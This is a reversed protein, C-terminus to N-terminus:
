LWNHYYSYSVHNKKWWDLPRAEFRNLEAKCYSEPTLDDESESKMKSARLYSSLKRRKHVPEEQTNGQNKVDWMTIKLHTLHCGEEVIWAPM